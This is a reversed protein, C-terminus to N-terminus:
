LALSSTRARVAFVVLQLRYLQMVIVLLLLALDAVEAAASAAVPLRSIVIVIKISLNCIALTGFPTSVAGFIEIAQTPHV